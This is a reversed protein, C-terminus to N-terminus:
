QSQQRNTVIKNGLPGRLHTLLMVTAPVISAPQQAIGIFMPDRSLGNNSAFLTFMASKDVTVNEKWWHCARDELDGCQCSKPFQASEHKNDTKPNLVVCRDSVSTNWFVICGLTDLPLRSYGGM